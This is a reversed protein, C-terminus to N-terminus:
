VVSVLGSLYTDVCLGGCGVQVYVFTGFVEAILANKLSPEVPVVSGTSTPTITPISGYAERKGSTM